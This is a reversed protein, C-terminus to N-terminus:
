FCVVLIHMSSHDGTLHTFLCERTNKKKNQQSHSLSHLSLLSFPLDSLMPSSREDFPKFVMMSYSSFRWQIPLDEIKNYFWTYMGNSIYLNRSEQLTKHFAIKFLMQEASLLSNWQLFTHMSVNSFTSIENYIRSEQLTKYDSIKFLM